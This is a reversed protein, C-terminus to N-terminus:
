VFDKLVLGFLLIEILKANKRDNTNNKSTINVVVDKVSTQDIVFLCYVLSGKTIFRFRQLAIRQTFILAFSDRSLLRDHCRQNLTRFFLNTSDRM